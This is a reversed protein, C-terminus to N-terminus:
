SAVARDKGERKARYLARDASSIADSVRVDPGPICWSWGISVRVADYCTGQDTQLCLARVRRCLDDALVATRDRSIGAVFVAFEEGGYRM